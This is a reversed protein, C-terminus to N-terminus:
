PQTASVTPDTGLTARAQQALEYSEIQSKVWNAYLSIRTYGAEDGYTGDPKKDEAM